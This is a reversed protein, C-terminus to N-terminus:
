IAGKKFMVTLLAKETQKLSEKTSSLKYELEKNRKKLNDIIQSEVEDIESQLHQIAETRSAYKVGKAKDMVEQPFMISEVNYEISEETLESEARQREEDSFCVIGEPEWQFQQYLVEHEEPKISCYILCVPFIVTSDEIRIYM